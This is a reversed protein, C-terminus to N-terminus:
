DSTASFQWVPLVSKGQLAKAAVPDAGASNPLAIEFCYHQEGAQDAAIARADALNGTGLTVGAASSGILYTAGASFASAACGPDSGPDESTAAVVVRLQLASWLGSDTGTEAVAGNLLLSGAASDAGTRLAVPAYVATGPSLALAGTSFVLAGADERSERDTWGAGTDQQVTFVSTGLGEEIAGGDGVAGGFVWESDNWSALTAAAGAGVVLGAALIAAM